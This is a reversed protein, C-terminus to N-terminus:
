LNEVLERIKHISKFKTYEDPFLKELYFSGEAVYFDALTLYGLVFKKGTLYKEIKEYRSKNKYYHGTKIDQVRKNSLM